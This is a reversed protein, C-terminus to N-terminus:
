TVPTILEKAFSSLSYNKIDEEKTLETNPLYYEGKDVGICFVGVSIQKQEVTIKAKMADCAMPCPVTIHTKMESIKGLLIRAAPCDKPTPM